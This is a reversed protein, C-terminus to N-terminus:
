PSAFMETPECPTGLLAHREDGHTEAIRARNEGSFAHYWASSAVHWLSGRKHWPVRSLRLFKLLNHYSFRSELDTEHPFYALLADNVRLM